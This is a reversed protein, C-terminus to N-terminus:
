SIISKLNFSISHHKTINVNENFSWSGSIADNERKVMGDTDCTSPLPFPQGDELDFHISESDSEDDGSDNGTNQDDNQTTEIGNKDADANNEANEAHNRISQNDGNGTSYNNEANEYDNRVEVYNLM